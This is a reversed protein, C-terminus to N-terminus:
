PVPQTTPAAPKKGDRADRFKQWVNAELRLVTAMDDGTMLGTQARTADLRALMTEGKPLPEDLLKLLKDTSRNSGKAPAM